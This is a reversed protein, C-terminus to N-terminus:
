NKCQELPREKGCSQEVICNIFQKQLLIIITLPPIILPNLYGNPAHVKLNLIVTNIQM